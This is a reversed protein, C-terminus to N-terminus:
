EPIGDESSLDYTEEESIETTENREKLELYIYPRTSAPLNSFSYLEKLDKTKLAPIFSTVHVMRTHYNRILAYKISYRLSWKPHEAIAHIIDPRVTSNNILTCLQIETIVPSDLCSQVVTSGGRAMIALVTASNSRKALATKIGSPMTPIKETLMLEIKQRITVPIAIDRTFDGLDFIRLYKLLSFVIRQPTKPNRCLLLKLKYSDKFRTDNALLGLVESPTNKKKALSFAMDERLHRNLAANM